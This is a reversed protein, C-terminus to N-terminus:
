NEGAISFSETGLLLKQDILTPDLFEPKALLLRLLARVHEAAAHEISAERTSVSKRADVESGHVIASRHKYIEKVEKFVTSCRAPDILKYLAAARLAVKHTVEQNGDALLSELAITLDLVGDEPSSRVSRSNLRRIPVSLRTGNSALADFTKAVADV